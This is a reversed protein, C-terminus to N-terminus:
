CRITRFYPVHMKNVRPCQQTAGVWGNTDERPRVRSHFKHQRACNRHSMIIFTTRGIGDLRGSISRRKRCLCPYRQPQQSGLCLRCTRPRDLMLACSCILWLPRSRIATFFHYCLSLSYGLFVFAAQLSERSVGFVTALLGVFHRCLLRRHLQLQSAVLM